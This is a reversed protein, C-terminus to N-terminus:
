DEDKGGRLRERLSEIEDKFRRSAQEGLNGIMSAAEALKERAQARMEEAGAARSERRVDRRIAKGLRELEEGLVVLLDDFSVLGVLREGRTVPMRRVGRDRMTEVLQELPQTAECSVVPTSMVASLEVERPDKGGAVVRTAIDRDTIIGTPRDEADTVVVCGVARKRMAEVARQVPADARLSVVDKEYHEFPRLLPADSVEAADAATGRGVQSEAVSALGAIERGLLRILDDVSLVGFPRGEGDVVLLRRMRSRAMLAIAEGISAGTVIRVPPSSMADAVRFELEDATHLVIDRDTLVGTLRGDDVVALLGVGASEMRQAAERIGEAPAAKEVPKHCYSEVSM